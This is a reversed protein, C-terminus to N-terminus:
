RFYQPTAIRYFRMPFNKADDDRFLGTGASDTQNTQLNSWGTSGLAESCQLVYTQSPNGQFQIVTAGGEMNFSTILVTQPKSATSNTTANTTANALNAPSNTGSALSQVPMRLMAKLNESTTFHRQFDADVSGDANLRAFHPCKMGNVETFDGVILIKRDKQLAVGMVRAGGGIVCHFGRDTSGDPLLRALGTFPEGNLSSVGGALLLRGDPQHVLTLFGPSSAEFSNTFGPDPMWNPDFKMLRSGNTGEVALIAGGAPLRV